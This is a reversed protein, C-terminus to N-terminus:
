GKLLGKAYAMARAKDPVNDPGDFYGSLQAEFLKKLLGGMQPGNPVGLVALDEGSLINAPPKHAVNLFEARAVLADGAPYVSALGNKVAAENSLRGFRLAWALLATDEVMLGAKARGLDFSLRRLDADHESTWDKTGVLAALRDATPYHQILYRAGAAAKSSLDAEEFFLESEKKDGYAGQKDLAQGIVAFMLHRAREDSLGRLRVILAAMDLSRLAKAWDGAEGASAVYLRDLGTHRQGFIGLGRAVGLAVSPKPSKLLMKDWEEGMREKALYELPVSRCLEATEADVAFGFRGAFQMVRFVRLPDDVFTEPDVHRLRRNQIDLLGGYSDLIEGTLLDLGLANITLDRRRAAQSFELVPDSVVRPKRGRGPPTRAERRALAVDLGKFKFVGFSKGVQDVDANRGDDATQAMRGLILKLADESLGYVELDIDKSMAGYGFKRMVLDRVFGGVVLARGGGDRVERSLIKAMDLRAAFERDGAMDAADVRCWLGKPTQRIATQTALQTKRM